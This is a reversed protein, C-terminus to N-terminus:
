RITVTRREDRLVLAVKFLAADVNRDAAAETRDGGRLGDTGALEVVAKDKGTAGDEARRAAKREDGHRRQTIVRRHPHHDRASLGILCGFSRSPLFIPM